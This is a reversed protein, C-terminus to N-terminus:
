AQSQNYIVYDMVLRGDSYRASNLKWKRGNEFNDSVSPRFHTSHNQYQNNESDVKKRYENLCFNEKADKGSVNEGRSL